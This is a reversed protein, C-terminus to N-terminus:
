INVNLLSNNMNDRLYEIYEAGNCNKEKIEAYVNPLEIKRTAGVSLYMYKDHILNLYYLYMEHKEKEHLKDFISIPLPEFTEDDIKIVLLMDRIDSKYRKITLEYIREPTLTKEIEECVKDRPVGAFHVFYAAKLAASYEQGCVLSM